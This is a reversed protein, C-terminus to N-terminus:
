AIIYEEEYEKIEETIARIEERYDCTGGFFNDTGHWEKYQELRAKLEGLRQRSIVKFGIRTLVDEYAGYYSYSRGHKCFVVTTKKSKETGGLKGHAIVEGDPYKSHFIEEFRKFTM